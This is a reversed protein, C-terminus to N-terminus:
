KENGFDINLPMHNVRKEKPPLKMYDGYLKSLYYDNNNMGNYKKGEFVVEKTPLINSRLCLEKEYAYSGALANMYTSNDDKNKRLIKRQIKMLFRRKFISLLLVTIPHRLKKLSLMKLKYFNTEVIEKVFYARIKGLKSANKINEFPFIDIFIGKHNNLNTSIEEDFITNNKRLKAYPFYCDKNTEFCDLYYKEDLEKKAIEIFKDYDKRPMGVDIDDDWPIFGQHRVAGLLTGGVLFYNLNYKKCILVFDDLIKIEVEHLKKLTEDDYARYNGLVLGEKM